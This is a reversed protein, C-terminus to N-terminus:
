EKIDKSNINPEDFKIEYCGNMENRKRKHAFTYNGKRSFLEYRKESGKFIILVCFPTINWTRKQFFIGIKGKQGFLRVFQHNQELM